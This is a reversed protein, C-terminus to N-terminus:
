EVEKKKMQRQQIRKKEENLKIEIEAHKIAKNHFVRQEIKQKKERAQLKMTMLEKM